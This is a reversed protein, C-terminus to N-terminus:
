AQIDREKRIPLFAPSAVIPVADLKFTLVTARYAEDNNGQEAVVFRICVWQSDIQMGQKDNLLM